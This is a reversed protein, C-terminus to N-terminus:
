SGRLLQTFRDFAAVGFQGAERGSRKLTQPFTLFDRLPSPRKWRYHTTEFAVQRSLRARPVRCACSLVTFRADNRAVMKDTPISAAAKWFSDAQSVSSAPNFDPLTSCRM